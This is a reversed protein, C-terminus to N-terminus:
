GIVNPCIDIHGTLDIDMSFGKHQWCLLLFVLNTSNNQTPFKCLIIIDTSIFRLGIDLYNLLRHAKTYEKCYNQSNVIKAYYAHLSFIHFVTYKM